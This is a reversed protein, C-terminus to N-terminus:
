ATERESRWCRFCQRGYLTTRWRHRHPVWKLFSPWYPHPANAGDPTRRMRVEARLVVFVLLGLWGVAALAALALLAVDFWGFFTM